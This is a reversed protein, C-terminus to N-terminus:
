KFDKVQQQFSPGGGPAVSLKAAESREQFRKVGKDVAADLLDRMDVYTSVRESRPPKSRPRTYIEGARLVDCCDARCIVPTDVFPRVSLWVFTKGEHTRINLDFDAAPEAYQRVFSAVRDPDFTNLHEPLVGTPKFNGEGPSVQSVGIVIDGGDYLNSMALISKTVNAMTNRSKKKDWAFSEKFERDRDETTATIIRIFADEIM